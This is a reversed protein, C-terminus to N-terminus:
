RALDPTTPLAHGRSSSPDAPRRESSAEPILTTVQRALVYAANPIGPRVDLGTLENRLDDQRQHQDAEQPDSPWARATRDRM